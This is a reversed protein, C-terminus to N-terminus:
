INTFHFELWAGYFKLLRHAERLEGILSFLDQKGMNPHELKTTIFHVLGFEGKCTYFCRCSPPVLIRVWNQPSKRAEETVLNDEVRTGPPITKLHSKEFWKFIL